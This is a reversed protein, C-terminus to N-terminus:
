EEKKISYLAMEIHPIDDELYIDSEVKFGLRNYFTELHAQASIRITQNPYDKQLKAIAKAMLTIGLRQNRYDQHVIVRGISTEAYSIGPPLLRAYAILKDKHMAYLHKAYIDKNDCEPYLCNQELMFVNVRLQLIRYLELATLEDFSKITWEM